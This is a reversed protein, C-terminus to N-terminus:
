AKPSPCQLPPRPTVGATRNRLAVMDMLTGNKDLNCATEALESTSLFYLSQAPRLDYMNEHLISLYERVTTQQGILWWPAVEIHIANIAGSALLRPAGKLIKVEYGQADLKMLHIYPPSTGSMFVEDLTITEVSVGEMKKGMVTVDVGTNGANGPQEFLEHSSRNAGLAKPYLLLNQLYAGYSGYSATMLSNTMYFLNAPSPEFAVVQAVDPRALMQMVCSGINAGVDVYIGQKTARCEGGCTLRDAFHGSQSGDPLNPWAAALDVCSDFVGAAKIRDSVFDPYSRLCMNPAKGGNLYWGPAMPSWACVHEGDKGFVAQGNWAGQCDGGQSCGHPSEVEVKKHQQGSSPAAEGRLLAASVPLLSVLLFFSCWAGKLTSGKMKM